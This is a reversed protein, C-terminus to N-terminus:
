HRGTSDLYPYGSSVCATGLGMDTTGDLAVARYLRLAPSALIISISLRHRSLELPWNGRRSATAEDTDQSSGSQVVHLPIQAGLRQCLLDVAFSIPLM